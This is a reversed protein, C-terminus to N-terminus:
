GAGGDGEKPTPERGGDGVAALVALMEDGWRKAKGEGVGEVQRLEDLNSPKAVVVATMERNTLVAYPPQGDRKAAKARWTRLADWAQQGPGDLEARWDRSAPAPRSDIAAERWRVLLGWLAEGDRQVPFQAVDLIEKGDQWAVLERDDFALSAPDLRVTFVKLKM